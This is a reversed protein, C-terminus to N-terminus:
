DMQQMSQIFSQAPSLNLSFLFIWCAETRQAKAGVKHDLNDGSDSYHLLSNQDTLSEMGGKFIAGKYLLCFKLLIGPLWQM